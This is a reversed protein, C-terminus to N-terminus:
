VPSSQLQGLGDGGDVSGQATLDLSLKTLTPRKWEPRTVLDQNETTKSDEHVMQCGKTVDLRGISDLGPNSMCAPSLEFAGNRASDCALENLV